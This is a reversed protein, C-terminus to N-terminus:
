VDESVLIHGVCNYLAKRICNKLYAAAHALDRQQEQNMEGYSWNQNPKILVTGNFIFATAMDHILEGPGPTNTTRNIASRFHLLDCWVNTPGYEDDHDYQSAIRAMKRWMEGFLGGGHLDAGNFKFVAHAARHVIMWPTMPDGGSHRVVFTIRGKTKMSSTLRKLRDGENEGASLIIFNWDYGSKLLRERLKKIFSPNAVAIADRDTLGTGDLDMSYHQLSMEYIARLRM